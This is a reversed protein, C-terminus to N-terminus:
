LNKQSSKSNRFELGKKNVPVYQGIKDHYDILDHTQEKIVERIAEKLDKKSFPSGVVVMNARLKENKKTIRDFDVRHEGVGEFSKMWDLLNVNRFKEEHENLYALAKNHKRSVSEKHLFEDGGLEEVNVVMIMSLEFAM